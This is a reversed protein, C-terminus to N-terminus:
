GVTQIGSLQRTSTFPVCEQQIGIGRGGGRSSGGVKGKGMQEAKKSTGVKAKGKGEDRSKHPPSNQPNEEGSGRKSHRDKSRERERFRM